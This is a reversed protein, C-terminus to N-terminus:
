KKQGRCIPCLRSRANKQNKLKREFDRTGDSWTRAVVVDIGAGTVAKLLKSGKGSRHYELRTTLSHEDETYGIYHQAHKFKSSFHLLYVM